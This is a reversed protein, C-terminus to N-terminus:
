RVKISGSIFVKLYTRTKQIVDVFVQKRNKRKELIGITM